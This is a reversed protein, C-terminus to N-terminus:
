EKLTPVIHAGDKSYHIAFKNTEVWEGSLSKVLGIIRDAVVIEKKNWEGLKTTDLVGKGSYEEILRKSLEMGEEVSGCLLYSRQREKQFNNHGIIHKGQQGDHLTLPLESTGIKKRIEEESFTPSPDPASPSSTSATSEASSGSVASVSSTNYVKPTYKAVIEEGKEESLEIEDKDIVCRYPYYARDHSISYEQYELTLLRWKKRLASAEETMGISRLLKEETKMQRIRNEYSRQQKDVAYERRMTAETFDQPPRSGRKYEVARHRCNYGSICGNGDGNKGALAENIPRYPIGDITGVEGYEKGDLTVKGEFLSYLKGQFDACRPSCSAHSSIWCFLAGESVLRQLNEVAAAYRVAMEARLRVPMAYARGGRPTIIKPPEASLARVATRVSQQYDRIIPLGAQNGDDLVTRFERMREYPTKRFLDGVDVRLPQKRQLNSDLIRFLNSLEYHWKRAATVLSKKVQERLGVDAIERCVSSIAANLQAVLEEQPVGHSVGETVLQKVQTTATQVLLLVDSAADDAPPLLYREM